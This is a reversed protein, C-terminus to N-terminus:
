FADEKELFALIADSQDANLDNFQVGMGLMGSWLIKGSIELPRSAGPLKFSLRIQNGAGFSERTEIFAGAPSVDLMFSKFSQKGIVYNVTLMCPKRPFARIAIETEELSVPQTISQELQKLLKSQQEASFSGILKFLEDTIDGNLLQSFLILRRDAPMKNIIEVLRPDLNDRAPSQPMPTM